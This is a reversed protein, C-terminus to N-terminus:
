DRFVLYAAVLCVMVVLWFIGAMPSNRRAAERFQRQMLPNGALYQEVAQKADKLGVRRLERYHRVAEILRGNRLANVAEIPMADSVASGVAPADSALGSEVLARAEALGLGTEMRTLRIAEVLNGKKAADLAVPPLRHSQETM